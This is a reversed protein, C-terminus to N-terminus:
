IKSCVRLPTCWSPEVCITKSLVATASDSCGVISAEVRLRIPQEVLVNWTLTALSTNTGTVSNVHGDSTDFLGDDHAFKKGTKDFAEITYLFGFETTEQADVGCILPRLAAVMEAETQVGGSDGDFMIADTRKDFVRNGRRVKPVVGGDSTYKRLLQMRPRVVMPGDVPRMLADSIEQILAGADPIARPDPTDGGSHSELVTPFADIILRRVKAWRGEYDTRVRKDVERVADAKERTLRAVMADVEKQTYMREAKPRSSSGGDSDDCRMLARRDIHNAVDVIPAETRKGGPLFGDYPQLQINSVTLLSRAIYFPPSYAVLSKALRPHRATLRFVCPDNGAATAASAPLLAYVTVVCQHARTLRFSQEGFPITKSARASARVMAVDFMLEDGDPASTLAAMEEEGERALMELAQVVATECVDQGYLKLRFDIAVDRSREGAFVVNQIAPAGAGGAGDDALRHVHPFALGTNTARPPVRPPMFRSREICPELEIQELEDPNVYVCRTENVTARKWAAKVGRVRKQSSAAAASTKDAAVARERLRDMEPRGEYSFNYQPGNLCGLHEDPRGVRMSFLVSTEKYAPPALRKRGFALRLELLSPFDVISLAHTQSDPIWEQRKVDFKNVSVVFRFEYEGDGTIETPFGVVEFQRSVNDGCVNPNLERGSQITAFIGNRVAERTEATPELEAFTLAIPDEEICCLTDVVRCPGFLERERAIDIAGRKGRIHMKVCLPINARLPPMKSTPKVDWQAAYATTIREFARTNIGDPLTRLFGDLFFDSDSASVGQNLLPAYGAIAALDPRPADSLKKVVYDKRMAPTKGDVLWEPASADPFAIATWARALADGSLRALEDLRTQLASDAHVEGVLLSQQPNLLIWAAAMWFRPTGGDPLTDHQEVYDKVFAFWESENKRIM